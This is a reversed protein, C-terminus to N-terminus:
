HKVYKKFVFWPMRQDKISKTKIIHERYENWARDFWVEDKYRPIFTEDLMECVMSPLADYFDKNM